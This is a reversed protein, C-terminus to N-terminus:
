EDKDLKKENGDWKLPTREVYVMSGGISNIAKRRYDNKIPKNPKEELSLVTGNKIEVVGYRNPDPVRYAYVKAGEIKKFYDLDKKSFNIGNFINDGLILAVSDKGIFKEGIIFSEAIGNPKEQVKYEIKIGWQNGSGLLKKFNVVDEKTTIILIDKIDASILTCLPYYIMPKDYVPLLQKSSAMTLPYLRTGSGGSLIIGKM